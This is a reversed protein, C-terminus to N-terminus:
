GAIEKCKKSLDSNALVSRSLKLIKQSLTALQKINCNHMDNVARRLDAYKKMSLHGEMSVFFRHDSELKRLYKKVQPTPLKQRQRLAEAERPRRLKKVVDPNGDLVSLLNHLDNASSKVTKFDNYTLTAQGYRKAWEKTKHNGHLYALVLLSVYVKERVEDFTLRSLDNHRRVIRAESLYQLFPTLMGM